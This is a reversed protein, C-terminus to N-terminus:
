ALRPANGDIAEVDIFDPQQPQHMPRAAVGPALQQVRARQETRWAPETPPGTTRSRIPAMRGREEPRLWDAQLGQSGRTCWVVLFQELSLGAKSAESRAGALVTETVPAKKARRLGLWDGWTTESVDDPRDPPPAARKRPASGIETERLEEKKEERRKEERPTVTVDRTVNREDRGGDASEGRALAAKRERYRRQREANTSDSKEAPDVNYGEFFNPLTIGNDDQVVWGAHEMASGIGPLDAIDDLVSVTVGACVLDDSNRKGRMRMVGWISVLAGVTVNRMVNRTVAMDRKCMQNVYRALDGDHSMLSEAIVSVKPDRYIDSRMKIWDSAM